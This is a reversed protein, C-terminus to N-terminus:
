RIEDCTVTFEEKTVLHDLDKHKKKRRSSSRHSKTSSNRSIKDLNEDLLLHDM